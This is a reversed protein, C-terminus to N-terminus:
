RVNDIWANKVAGYVYAMLIFACGALLTAIITVVAGVGISFVVKIFEWITEM